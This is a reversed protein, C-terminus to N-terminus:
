FRRQKKIWIRNLSSPERTKRDSLLVCANKPIVKLFLALTERDCNRIELVEGVNMDSFKRNAQLVSVPVMVGYLDIQQDATMSKKRKM